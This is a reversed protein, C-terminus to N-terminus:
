ESRRALMQRYTAARRATPYRQIYVAMNRYAQSADGMARYTEILLGLEQASNARGSLARIVCPNDGRALCASAIEMPPKENAASRQPKSEASRRAAPEARNQRPAPRPPEAKALLTEAQKRTGEALPELQLVERAREAATEPKKRLLQKAQALRARALEEITESVEARQKVVGGPALSSLEKYAGDLDRAELAAKGRVFIQEQDHNAGAAERCMVAEAADPRLKLAATAHAIAEAFRGGANAANCSALLEPFRDPEATTEAAPVAPTQPEDAAEAAAQEVPEPAIAAPPVRTEPTARLVLYAAILACGAVVAAVPWTRRGRARKNGVLVRAEAPDFVYHEGRDVFRLLVDGLEIVDGPALRAERVKERNIVVGNVSERDIIRFQGGDCVLAAHERSVSRHDIAIDLDPARGLRVEGQEPLPFEAGELPPTLVFLRAPTKPLAAIQTPEQELDPAKEAGEAQLLLTYDGIRIEDGPEVKSEGDVRQGNLVVGNYSGLDRVVYSGNLKQLRCHERSINRETLRITNGDKRGISVEDRVMPVVTTTGENDSIVLKIM